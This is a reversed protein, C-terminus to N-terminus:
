VMEGAAPPFLRYKILADRWVAELQPGDTSASRWQRTFGWIPTDPPHDPDPYLSALLFDPSAMARIGIAVISGVVANAKLWAEFQRPNESRGV